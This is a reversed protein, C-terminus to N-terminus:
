DRPLLEAIEAALQRPDAGPSLRLRRDEDVLLGREIFYAIANQYNGAACAERRRVEGTLFLKEGLDHIRRQVERTALPQSLSEVGRAAILYSEVFDCVLGALLALKEPEAARLAPEGGAGSTTPALLRARELGAVTADFIVEFTEGVRYSFELKLLRSLRLTRQRLLGRAIVREAGPVGGTAGLLALAVLGEAVYLHLANNRYYALRPRREDPVTYIEDLPRGGPVSGSGSRVELDGDKALLDLARDIADLELGGGEATLSEALRGSSARAREILFAAGALLAKRTTGRRGSALLASAALATPTVATVRNM